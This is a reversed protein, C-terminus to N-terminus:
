EDVGVADCARFWDGETMQQDTRLDLQTLIEDVSPVGPYSVNRPEDSCMGSNASRILGAVNAAASAAPSFQGDM